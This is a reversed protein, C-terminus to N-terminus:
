KLPEGKRIIQHEWWDFSLDINYLKTEKTKPHIKIMMGRDCDIAGCYGSIPRDYRFYNMSSEFSQTSVKLDLVLKGYISLDIRGKYPMVLGEHIFDAAVAQEPVLFEWLPGLKKKVEIALPRIISIDNFRYEDPSLLYEHVHTGLQMAPTSEFSIGENKLGSHSWGPMKLYEDFPCM